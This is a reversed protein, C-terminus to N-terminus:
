DPVATGLWFSVVSGTSGFAWKKTDADYKNSLIIWLSAVLIVGTIVYIMPAALQLRPYCIGIEGRSPRRRRIFLYVLFLVLTGGFITIAVSEM